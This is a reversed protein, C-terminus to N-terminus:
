GEKEKENVGGIGERGDLGGRHGNKRNERKSDEYHRRREEEWEKKIM